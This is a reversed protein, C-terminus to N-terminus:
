ARLVKQVTLFSPKGEASLAKYLGERTLVSAKAIRTMGKAKAVEGLAVCLFSPAAESKDFAAHVFALRDAESDLYNQVDFECTMAAIKTMAAIIATMAM